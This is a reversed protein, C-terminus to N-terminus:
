RQEDMLKGRLLELTEEYSEPLPWQKKSQSLIEGLCDIFSLALATQSLNADYQGQRAIDSFRALINQEAQGRARELTRAREARSQSMTMLIHNEWATRWNATRRQLV